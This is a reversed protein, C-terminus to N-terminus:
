GGTTHALVRFYGNEGPSTGEAAQRLARAFERAIPLRYHLPDWYNADSSTVDNALRFDVATAGHRRAITALRAKCEGDRAAELSGPVPQIAIHVPPFVILARTTSPL